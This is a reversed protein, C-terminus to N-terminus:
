KIANAQAKYMNVIERLAYTLYEMTLPSSTTHAQTQYLSQLTNVLMEM